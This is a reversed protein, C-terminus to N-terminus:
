LRRLQPHDRLICTLAAVSNNHLVYVYDNHLGMTSQIEDSTDNRYNFNIPNADDSEETLSRIDFPLSISRLHKLLVSREPKGPIHRTLNVLSGNSSGM